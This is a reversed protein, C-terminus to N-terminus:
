SELGAIIDTVWGRPIILGIAVGSRINLVTGRPICLLLLSVVRSLLLVRVVAMRIHVLVAILPGRSKRVHLNTENRRFSIFEASTPTQKTKKRGKQNYTPLLFGM